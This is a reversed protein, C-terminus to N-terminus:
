LHMIGEHHFFCPLCIGDHVRSLASSVLSCMFRFFRWRSSLPPSFLLFRFCLLPVKFVHSSPACLFLPCQLSCYLLSPFGSVPPSLYEFILMHFGFIQTPSTSGVKLVAAHRIKLMKGNKPRWFCSVTSTFMQFDSFAPCQSNKFLYRSGM